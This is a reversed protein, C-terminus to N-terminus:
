VSATKADKPKLGIRPPSAAGSALTTSGRRSEVPFFIDWSSFATLLRRSSSPRARACATASWMSIHKRLRSGLMERSGATCPGTSPDASAALSPTSSTTRTTASRNLCSGSSVYVKQGATAKGRRETIRIILLTMGSNTSKYKVETTTNHNRPEQCRLSGFFKQRFEQRWKEALNDQKYHYHKGHHGGPIHQWFFEPPM